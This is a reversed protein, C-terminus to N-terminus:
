QVIFGAVGPTPALTQQKTGTATRMYLMRDLDSTIPGNTPLRLANPDDVPNVVYPTVLIVIETEGRQFQDDRFAPGLIPIDGLYPLASRNGTMSDQLLGAIAFTQGSGLEVTTEARRVTLSPVVLNSGGTAVTVASQSSLESVEPAVHISIRGDSFLTPLFSLSVGYNKYSVTVQGLAGGAVPIPYQGGVLFSAPQGSIVTLNPEALMRVIGETALADLAAQAGLNLRSTFPTIGGVLPTISGNLNTILAPLAGIQGINGLAQWSVGLKRSLSRSMEAIKVQLTIQVSSRVTIQNEVVQKDTAFAKAVAVAQAADSPNEVTGSLMLGTPLARVRIHSRPLIRQIEQEAQIAGYNSTQVTVDYQSVLGGAADLAAVTTRGTGVGFIFLTTPSAPRVEAVKSDAVFVNTAASPLTLVRGTGSDLLVTSAAMAAGPLLAAIVVAVRLLITRIM